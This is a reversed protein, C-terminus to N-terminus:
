LLESIALYLEQWKANIRDLKHQFYHYTLIFVLAIILGLVTTWLASHIGGALAKTVEAHTPNRMAEMMVFAQTKLLLLLM